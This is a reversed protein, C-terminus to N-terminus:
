SDEPCPLLLQEPYDLTISPGWGVRECGVIGTAVVCTGVLSDDPSWTMSPMMDIPVNVYFGYAGEAATLVVNRSTEEVAAITFRVSVMETMCAVLDAELAEVTLCGEVAGWLGRRTLRAEELATQFYDYYRGNPPIFLLRALGARVMEANVLVWGDDTEVYVHALLRHYVDRQQEDFELRLPRHAVWAYLAWKAEDAYPEGLEPTDIGLLRVTEGGRLELTDGDTIRTCHAEMTAFAVDPTQSLGPWTCAFGVLLAIVLTRM